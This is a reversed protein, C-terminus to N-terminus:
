HPFGSLSVNQNYGELGKQSKKKEKKKTETM